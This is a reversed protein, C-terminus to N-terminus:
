WVFSDGRVVLPAVLSFTHEGPYKASKEYSFEPTSAFEVGLKVAQETLFVRVKELMPATLPVPLTITVGVPEGSAIVGLSLGPTGDKRVIVQRYLALCQRAPQQEQQKM